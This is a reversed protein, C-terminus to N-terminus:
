IKVGIMEYAIEVVMKSQLQEKNFEKLMENSQWLINNDDYCIHRWGIINHIIGKNENFPYNGRILDTIVNNRVSEQKNENEM